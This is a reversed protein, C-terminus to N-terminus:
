MKRTLNIQYLSEIIKNQEEENANQLKKILGKKTMLLTKKDYTSTVNPNVIALYVPLDQLMKNQSELEKKQKQFENWKIKAFLKYANSIHYFKDYPWIETFAENYIEIISQYDKIVEYWDSNYYYDYKDEDIDTYLLSYRLKYFLKYTKDKIYISEMIM